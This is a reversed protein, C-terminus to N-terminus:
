SRTLWSRKTHRATVPRRGTTQNEVIVDIDKHLQQTLLTQGSKVTVMKGDVTVEVGAPIEIPMKGIRSM